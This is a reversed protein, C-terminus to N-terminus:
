TKEFIWGQDFVGLLDRRIGGQLLHQDTLGILRVQQQGLTVEARAAVIRGFRHEALSVLRLGVRACQVAL